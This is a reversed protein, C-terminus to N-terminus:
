TPCIISWNFTSHAISVVFGSRAVQHRLVVTCMGALMDGIYSYPEDYSAVKMAGMITSCSKQCTVYSLTANDFNGIDIHM